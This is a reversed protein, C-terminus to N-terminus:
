RGASYRTKPKTITVVAAGCDANQLDLEHGFVVCGWTLAMLEGPRLLGHYGIFDLSVVSFWGWTAAATVMALLVM